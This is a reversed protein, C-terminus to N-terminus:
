FPCEQNKTAIPKLELAMDVLIDLEDEATSCARLAHRFSAKPNEYCYPSGRRHAYHYGGCNCPKCKPSIALHKFILTGTARRTRCANCRIWPRYPRYSV